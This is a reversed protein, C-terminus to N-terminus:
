WRWQIRRQTQRRHDALLQRRTPRLLVQLVQNLDDSALGFTRLVHSKLLISSKPANSATRIQLPRVNHTFIVHLWRLNPFAKPLLDLSEQLKLRNHTAIIPKDAPSWLKFDWTTELSTITPLHFPDIM